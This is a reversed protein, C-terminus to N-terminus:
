RQAAQRKLMRREQISGPAPKLAPRQAPQAPVVHLRRAERKFYRAADRERKKQRETNPEPPAGYSAAEAFIELIGQTRDRV